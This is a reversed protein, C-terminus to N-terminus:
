RELPFAAAAGRAIWLRSAEGLAIETVACKMIAWNPFPLCIFTIILTSEWGFMKNVRSSNITTILTLFFFCTYCTLVNTYTFFIVHCIIKLSMLCNKTCVFSYIWDGLTIAQKINTLMKLWYPMQLNTKSAIMFPFLKQLLYLLGSASVDTAFGAIPMSNARSIKVCIILHTWCFFTEVFLFM